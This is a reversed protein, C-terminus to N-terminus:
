ALGEAVSHALQRLRGNLSGSTRREDLSDALCHIEDINNQFPGELILTPVESYKLLVLDDRTYLGPADQELCYEESLINLSCAQAVNELVKSFVPLQPKAQPNVFGLVGNRETSLSGPCGNLHLSILLDPKLTNALTARAQLDVGNKLAVEVLSELSMSQLYLKPIDYRQLIQPTDMRGVVSKAAECLSDRSEFSACRTGRRRTLIVELGRSELNEKLVEAWEFCFDGEKFRRGQIKFDRLDFIGEGVHGPDICVSKM